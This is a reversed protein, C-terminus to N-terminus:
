QIEESLIRVLVWWGVLSQYSVKGTGERASNSNLMTKDILNEVIDFGHLYDSDPSM